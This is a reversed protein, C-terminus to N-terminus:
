HVKTNQPTIELQRDTFYIAFTDKWAKLMCARVEDLAIVVAGKAFADMMDQNDLSTKASAGYEKMTNLTYFEFQALFALFEQHTM